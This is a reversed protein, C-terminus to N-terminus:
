ARHAAHVARAIAAPALVLALRPLRRVRTSAPVPVRPIVRWRCVVLAVAIGVVRAARVARRRGRWAWSGLWLVHVWVLEPGWWLDGRVHIGEAAEEAVVEARKREVRLGDNGVEGEEGM